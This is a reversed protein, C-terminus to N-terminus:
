GKPLPQLTDETKLRPKDAIADVLLWGFLLGGLLPRYVSLAWAFLWSIWRHKQVGDHIAGFFRAAAAKRQAVKEPSTGWVHDIVKLAVKYALLLSNFIIVELPPLWWLFIIVIVV